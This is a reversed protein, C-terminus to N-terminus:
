AAALHAPASKGTMVCNRGKFKAAYLAEDAIRYANQFIPTGFPPAILPAIGFSATMRLVQGDHAFNASAITERLREAIRAADDSSTAPLYVAFEEGGLRAAVDGPRLHARLVDAIRKLVDDGAEHGLADNVRKFHDLDLLVLAGDKVGRRGKMGDTGCDLAYTFGRRNNLETLPDTQADRALAAEYDSMRRERKLLLGFAVAAVACFPVTPLVTPLVKLAVDLPLLFVALISLRIFLGAGLLRLTDPDRGALILRAFLLGLGGALAIGVTGPIAGAGSLVFFRYAGAIATAIITALPGLFLGALGVIVTRGDVFVGPVIELPSLMALIAGMGFLFGAAVAKGIPAVECRVIAGYGLTILGLIGFGYVVGVVTQIDVIM